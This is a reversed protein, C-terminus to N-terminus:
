TQELPTLRRSMSIFRTRRMRVTTPKISQSKTPSVVSTPIRRANLMKNVPYRFFARFMVKLINIFVIVFIYVSEKGLLLLTGFVVGLWM